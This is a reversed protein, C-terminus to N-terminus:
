ADSAMELPEDDENWEATNIALSPWGSGELSMASENMDEDLIGTLITSIVRQRAEYLAEEASEAEVEGLFGFDVMYKLTSEKEVDYQIRCGM